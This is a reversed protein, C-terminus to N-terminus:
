SVPSHPVLFLPEYLWLFTGVDRLKEAKAKLEADSMANIAETVEGQYHYNPHLKRDVFPNGSLTVPEACGAQRKEPAPMALVTSALAAVTAASFKM